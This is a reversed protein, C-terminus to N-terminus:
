PKSHINTTPTQEPHAQLTLATPAHQAHARLASRGCIPTAAATYNRQQQLFTHASTSYLQSSLLFTLLFTSDTAQAMGHLAKRTDRTIIQKSAQQSHFSNNLCSAVHSAASGGQSEQNGKGPM